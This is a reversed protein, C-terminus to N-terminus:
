IKTIEFEELEIKGGAGQSIIRAWKNRSECYVVRYFNTNGYKTNISADYTGGDNLLAMIKDDERKFKRTVIICETTDDDMHAPIFKTGIPYRRKAEDFLNPVKYAKKKSDWEEFESELM